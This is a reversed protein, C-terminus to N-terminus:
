GPLGRRDLGDFLRVDPVLTGFITRALGLFGGTAILGLSPSAGGSYRRIQAGSKAFRSPARDPRDYPMYYRPTRTATCDVRTKQRMSRRGGPRRGRLLDFGM